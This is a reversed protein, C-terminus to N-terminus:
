ASRGATAESRTDLLLDLVDGVRYVKRVRGDVDRSGRREILGRDIWNQIRRELKAQSTQDGLLVACARAITAVNTEEDRALDLLIRRREAVPWTTRCVPCRVDVGDPDAYLVRTCFASTTEDLVAGCVGAYWRGKNAEVIRRLRVELRIVDAVFEGAWELTAISRVQQGLLWALAHVTDAPAYVTPRDEILARVWGVLANKAAVAADEIPDDYSAVAVASGTPDAVRNSRRLGSRTAPLSFLDAHYASVNSLARRATHQCRACLVVGDTAATCHLCTLHSM